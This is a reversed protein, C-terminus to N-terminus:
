FTDRRKICETLWCLVFICFVGNLLVIMILGKMLATLYEYRNGIHYVKSFLFSSIYQKKQCM